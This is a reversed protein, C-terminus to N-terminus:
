RVTSGTQPHNNGSEETDLCFTVVLSGVRLRHAPRRERDNRPRFTPQAPDCRPSALSKFWDSKVRHIGSGVAWWTPIVTV